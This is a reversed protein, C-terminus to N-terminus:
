WIVSCYCPAHLVPGPAISCHTSAIGNIVMVPCSVSVVGSLEGSFSGLLLPAAAAARSAPPAGAARGVAAAAAGGSGGAVLRKVLGLVASKGGGGSSGNLGDTIALAANASRKTAPAASAAATNISHHEITGTLPGSPRFSLTAVLATSVCQVM